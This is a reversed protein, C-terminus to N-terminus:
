KIAVYLTCIGFTLKRLKVKKFGVNKLIQKFKLGDPFAHVSEPLYSYARADKSIMRGVFPLVNNFYFFYIRRYFWNTPKSFELIALPAQPKLVRYIESLGKELNQFNRVGFAVTVADFSEDEFALQESDGVQLEITKELNLQAIKKKGVELMGESIDVGVIKKAKTRVLAVALDGTGTAVDLINIPQHQKIEKALKRRWIRDIGMSLLINLFDYRASINNFMQAVEGKKDSQTGGYPTIDEINKM